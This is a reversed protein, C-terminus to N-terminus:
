LGDSMVLLNCGRVDANDMRGLVRFTGQEDVEGLDQTEIFACSHVNSLDIVNLGGVKGAPLFDFPDSIDRARVRMWSPTHFRGDKTYAQSTLEAMGYESQIESGGFAKRLRDHLDERIIEPRQGKMGGTEIIVADSLDIPGREALDLLAFSVGWIMIKRDALSKLQYVKETLKQYDRLYFGSGPSDSRSILHDVMHVLSSGSRELYSPLLALIHYREPSGYFKEFTKLTVNEYYGIDFIFHNSSPGFGTGSSTFVTQPEWNGTVVKRSKFLSIPMFPIQDLRDIKQADIALNRIYERYVPNNHAQFHFIDLAVPEFEKEDLNIVKSQLGNLIEM